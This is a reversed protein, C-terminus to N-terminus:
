FVSFDHNAFFLYGSIFFFMPIFINSLELAFLYEIYYVVDKEREIALNTLNYAHCVVVMFISYFSLIRIKNSMEKDM